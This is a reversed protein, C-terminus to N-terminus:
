NWETIVQFKEKQEKLAADMENKQKEMEETLSKNFTKQLVSVNDKLYRCTELNKVSTLFKM